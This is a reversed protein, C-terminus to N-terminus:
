RAVDVGLEESLLAALECRDRESLAKLEMGFEKLGDGERYGFYKKCAATFSLTM